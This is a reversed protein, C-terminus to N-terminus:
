ARPRAPAAGRLPGDRPRRLVEPRRLGEQGARHALVVLEWYNGAMFLELGIKYFSVADGLQEVFRRAQDHDPVDLAVILRDRAPIGKGPLPRPADDVTEANM